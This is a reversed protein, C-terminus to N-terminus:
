VSGTRWFIEKGADFGNKCVVQEVVM